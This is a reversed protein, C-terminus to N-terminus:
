SIRRETSPSRKATTLRDYVKDLIEQQPETLDAENEVLSLPVSERRRTLDRQAYKQPAKIGSERGEHCPISGHRAQGTALRNCDGHRVSAL